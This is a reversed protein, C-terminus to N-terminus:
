WHSLASELAWKTVTATRGERQRLFTREASSALLWVMPFSSRGYTKGPFSSTWDREAWAGSVGVYDSPAALHPDAQAIAAFSPSWALLALVEFHDSQGLSGQHIVHFAHAPVGMDEVYHLVIGLTWYAKAKNGAAYSARARAWIREPHNAAWNTGEAERRLAEQEADAVPLEHLERNAGDVLSARYTVLEPYLRGLQDAAWETLYAHTAHTPNKDQSDWPQDFTQVHDSSPSPAGDVDSTCAPAAALMVVFLLSSLHRSGM